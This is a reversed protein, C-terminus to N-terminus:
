SSGGYRDKCLQGMAQCAPPPPKFDQILGAALKGGARAGAQNRIMAALESQAEALYRVGSASFTVQGRTAVKPTTL